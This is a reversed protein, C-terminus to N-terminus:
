NIFWSEQAAGDDGEFVLRLDIDIYWDQIVDEKWPGPTINCEELFEAWCGKCLKTQFNEYTCRRIFSHEIGCQGCVGKEPSWLIHTM